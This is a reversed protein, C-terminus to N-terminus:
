FLALFHAAEIVHEALQVLLGTVCQGWRRWRGLGGAHLGHEIRQVIVRLDACGAVQHGGLAHCRLVCGCRQLCRAGSADRLRGGFLIQVLGLLRGLELGVDIRQVM